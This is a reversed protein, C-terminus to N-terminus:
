TLWQSAVKRAMILKKVESRFSEDGPNRSFLGKDSLKGKLQGLSLSDLHKGLVEEVISQLYGDMDDSGPDFMNPTADYRPDYHWQQFQEPDRLDGPM